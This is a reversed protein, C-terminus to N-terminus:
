RRSSGKRVWEGLTGGFFGQRDLLREALAQLRQADVADGQLLARAFRGTVNRADLKEAIVMHHEARLRKGQLALVLGLAGHSEAFNRDLALAQEFAAHAGERDQRLLRTWGLAHWTGIHAPTAQVARQLCSEAAALDQAQLLAMGLMALSRGDDPQQQLNQQLLDIAAQTESHALAVTAAAVLAEPVVVGSQLAAASWAAAAEFDNGDIALLSAVGQGAPELMGAAHQARAWACGEEVEGLRHTARLWLVQLAEAAEDPMERADLLPQLMSRCGAFDDLLFRLYALDHVLAPREGHEERLRHLLAGADDLQRRAICVRSRRFSWDAPSLALREARAIHELALAHEGAAIATDCADALLTPNGPDEDLYAQLRELRHSMEQQPAIM